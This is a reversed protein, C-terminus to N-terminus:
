QSGHRPYRIVVKDVPGVRSILFTNGFWYRLTRKFIDSLCTPEYLWYHQTIKSLCSDVANQCSSWPDLLVWITSLTLLTQWWVSKNYCLGWTGVRVDNEDSSWAKFPFLCFWNLQFWVERLSEISISLSSISLIHYDKSFSLMLHAKLDPTVLTNM